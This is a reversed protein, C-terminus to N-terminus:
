LWRLRFWFFSYPALTLMYPLAGIRPFLSGGFMEIPIAGALPQLALEVAQASSSLNNVVLIQEDGLSRVYALVRHNAPRLFEITGRGFVRTSRRVAILRRMWHLLSHENREQAEVNVAQYGYMPNSILPHYLREPDANSFGGNWGGSWQMPTRVGDRDGLFINDGMGIEDGYYLVPSGPLSMLIGNLLEIRRRDGDLLPALRRRIGLNIRAV